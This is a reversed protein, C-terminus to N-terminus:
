TPIDVGRGVILAVGHNVVGRSVNGIGAYDLVFVELCQKLRLDVGVRLRDDRALVRGLPLGAHLWEVRHGIGLVSGAVGLVAVKAFSDGGVGVARGAHDEAATEGFVFVVIHRRNDGM